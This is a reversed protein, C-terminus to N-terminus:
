QEKLVHQLADMQYKYSRSMFLQNQFERGLTPKGDGTGRSLLSLPLSPAHITFLLVGNGDGCCWGVRLSLKDKPGWLSLCKYNMVVEQKKDENWRGELLLEKKELRAVRCHLFLFFDGLSQLASALSCCPVSFLKGKFVDSYGKIGASLHFGM